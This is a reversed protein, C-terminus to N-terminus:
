FQSIEGIPTKELTRHSNNIILIEEAVRVTRSLGSVGVTDSAFSVGVCLADSTLKFYFALCNKFQKSIRYVHIEAIFIDSIM